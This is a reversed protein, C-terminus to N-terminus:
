NVNEKTSIFSLLQCINQSLKELHDIKKVGLYALKGSQYLVCTGLGEFKVLLSPFFSRNLVPKIRTEKKQKIFNYVDTLHVRTSLDGTAVINHITFNPSCKLRTYEEFTKIADRINDIAKLKTANVYSASWYIIYVYRLRIVACNGHFTVSQGLKKLSNLINDSEIKFAGKINRVDCTLAM